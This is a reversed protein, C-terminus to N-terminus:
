EITQIVTEGQAPYLIESGTETVGERFCPVSIM